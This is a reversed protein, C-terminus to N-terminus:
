SSATAGAAAMAEVCFGAPRLRAECRRRRAALLADADHLGLAVGGADSKHLLGLAKLM